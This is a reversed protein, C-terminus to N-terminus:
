TSFCLREPGLKPGQEHTSVSHWGGRLGTGHRGSLVVVVPSESGTMCTLGKWLILASSVIRGLRIAQFVARLFDAERASEVTDAVFGM